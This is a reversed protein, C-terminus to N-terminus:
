CLAPFNRARSQPAAGYRRVGVANGRVHSCRKGSGRTARRRQQRARGHRRAEVVLGVGVKGVDIRARAVLHGVVVAVVGGEIRRANVPAGEANTHPGREEAAATGHEEGNLVVLALHTESLGGGGGLVLLSRARTSRRPKRRARTRQRM